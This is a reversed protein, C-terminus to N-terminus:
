GRVCRSHTGGPRDALDPDDLHVVLQLRVLQQTAMETAQERRAMLVRPGTNRVVRASKVDPATTHYELSHETMLQPGTVAFEWSSVM